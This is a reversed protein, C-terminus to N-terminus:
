AAGELRTILDEVSRALVPTAGAAHAYDLWFQEVWRAKKLGVRGSCGAPV